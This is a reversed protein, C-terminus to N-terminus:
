LIALPRKKQPPPFEQDIRRMDDASLTLTAAAWNERLHAEKVAKPIAAVLPHSIVWALAVQVGSVGYNKGIASLTRNSGLRGQDTPTYAMVPVHHSQLLPMMSFEIGRTSASYYVQNVSCRPARHHPTTLAWLKELDDIDFNSVGWHRIKGQGRLTEFAEVTEILPYTGPWHLLYLDITDLQLRALSRECAALTGARSANHPYVKSVVFLDDRSIDGAVLAADVAEGIVREAGGEGYMEATDILRYGIEFAARLARVEDAHKHRSEGIHWTGLGLAPMNSGDPLPIVRM